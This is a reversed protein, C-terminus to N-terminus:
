LLRGPKVLRYAFVDVGRQITLINYGERRLEWIRAGYRFSIANLGNMGHEEGDSLLDLIRQKSSKRKVYVSTM